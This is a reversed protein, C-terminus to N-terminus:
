ATAEQQHSKRAASAGQDMKRNLFSRPDDRSTHGKVHKLWLHGSGAAARIRDAASQEGPRLNRVPHFKLPSSKATRARAVTLLIGLAHVSDCQIVYDPDGGPHAAKAASVGALIGLLEAEATTAVEGKSGSGIERTIRSKFWFHFGAVGDQFSADSFVTILLNM